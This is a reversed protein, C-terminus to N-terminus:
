EHEYKVLWPDKTQEQWRRLRTQMERLVAEHAADAALNRLEDPDREVDFLEERPRNLYAKLPRRGMMGDPQKLIARWSPSGYVDAATPFELGHALNLIYKHRRTRVMRMPYYMTVEHFVHSGYVEDWGGPHEQGLIPLVSRGSLRPPPKVGLWDLVTPAIDVWSVMANNTLGAPQRGPARIILPLRVGPDYLTTKAGPFPIGNDSLFIVLTQEAKGSERLAALLKGVGQDLRGVAEYYDALDRRVEPHDPLFYPLKVRAPDYHDGTVGPYQRANGFGRAARHPDSFGVVLLFPRTDRRGGDGGEGDFFRRARAAMASVDRNGGLGQEVQVDFPYVEKPQVHLKGIVGSRYRGSERLVRPLSRVPRFTHQNHTAHALGYQGNTHVYQGTYIVARSPSCSAVAAFAHTFRVGGRALADLHPTRVADNAYSGLDTGLDDAILLLVNRPGTPEPQGPQPPVPGGAAPNQEGRATAASLVWVFSFILVTARRQM